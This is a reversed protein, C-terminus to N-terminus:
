IPIKRERIHTSTGEKREWETRLLRRRAAKLPNIRDRFEKLIKNCETQLEEIQRGLEDIKDLRDQEIQAIKKSREEKSKERDKYKKTHPKDISKIPREQARLSSGRVLEWTGDEKRIWQETKQKEM